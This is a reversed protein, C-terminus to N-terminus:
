DYNLDDESQPRVYVRQEVEESNLMEEYVREKYENIADFHRKEKKIRNIFAHFAITTFYSFPNYKNGKSDVANLDFKKNFLATFMKVVADGVMEDKYSYNIFNPAYSLGHAIKTIMEGLEDDCVDTTYYRAIAEKFEKSNVYHEKSKPKIKQGNKPKKAQM